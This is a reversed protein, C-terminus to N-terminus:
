ATSVGFGEFRAWGAVRGFSARGFNRGDLWSRIRRLCGPRHLERPLAVRFRATSKGCYCDAGPPGPCQGPTYQVYVGVRVCLRSFSVCMCVCVQLLGDMESRNFFYFFSYAYVFLGTSGGAFFSRWWWRHDERGLQFYILAVQAAPANGDDPTRILLTIPLQTRKGPPNAPPKTPVATSPTAVRTQLLFRSPPRNVALDASERRGLRSFSPVVKPIPIPMPPCRYVMVWSLKFISQILITQLVKSRVRCVGSPRPVVMATAVMAAHATYLYQPGGAGAISDACCWAARKKGAAGEVPPSLQPPPPPPEAAPRVESVTIFSCVVLLLLFALILIGFLTYIQHGWVSAFIYHLEIYIASFPLFGSMVM